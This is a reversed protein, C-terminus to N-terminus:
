TEKPVTRLIKFMFFIRFMLGGVLFSATTFVSQLSELAMSLEIFFLGHRDLLQLNGDFALFRTISMKFEPTEIFILYSFLVGLFRTCSVLLLTPAMLGLMSLFLRVPLCIVVKLFLRVCQQLRIAKHM